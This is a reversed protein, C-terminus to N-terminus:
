GAEAGADRLPLEIVLGDEAASAGPFAERAERVLHQPQDSHRASFHTLV